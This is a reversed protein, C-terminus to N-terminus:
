GARPRRRRAISPAHAADVIGGVKGAHGVAQHFQALGMAVEVGRDRPQLAIGARVFQRDPPQLLAFQLEPVLDRLELRLQHGVFRGSASGPPGRRVIPGRNASSTATQM